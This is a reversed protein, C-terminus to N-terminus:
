SACRVNNYLTLQRPTMYDPLFVTQYQSQTNLSIKNQLLAFHSALRLCAPPFNARAEPQRLLVKYATSLNCGFKPGGANLLVEVCAEHQGALAYDGACNAQRDFANWPAGAALLTRVVETHGESAAAILASRGDSPDQYAADGGSRLLAEVQVV